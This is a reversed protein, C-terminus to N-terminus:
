YHAAVRLNWSFKKEIHSRITVSHPLALALYGLPFFSNLMIIKSPTATAVQRSRFCNHTDRYEVHDYCSRIPKGLSAWKQSQSEMCFGMITVTLWVSQWWMYSALWEWMRIRGIHLAVLVLYTAVCPLAYPFLLPSASMYWSSMHLFAWCTELRLLNQTADILIM